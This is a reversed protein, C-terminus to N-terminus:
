CSGRQIHKGNVWGEESNLKRLSKLGGGSKLVTLFQGSGKDIRRRVANRRWPQRMSYITPTQTLRIPVPTRLITGYKRDADEGVGAFSIDNQLGRKFMVNLLRAGGLGLDKGALSRKFLWLVVDVVQLGPSLDESTMRFKSGPAGSISYPEREGPWRLPEAEALSPRSYIEHWNHLMQKFQSQEDHVIERVPRKWAKSISELGDMLNTFAVFNPSHDHRGVKDRIHTTFNEPNELAWQLAETLLQRARADKMLPMRALTAAAGQMFHKKSTHESNATLCNWVIQAIEENLVSQALKFTMTLKFPKLWYMQWPVALNEGQDFYTDYVKAAALYSKELRSFFFRADTKKVIRALDDAILEIRAVGLENAHLATAGVKRTIAALERSEVLDFNTKTAMAAIR